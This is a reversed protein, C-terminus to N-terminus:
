VGSAASFACFTLLSVAAFKTRFEIVELDLRHPQARM